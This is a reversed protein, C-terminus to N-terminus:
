FSDHSFIAVDFLMFRTSKSESIWEKPTNNQTKRLKITQYVKIHEIFLSIDIKQHAM